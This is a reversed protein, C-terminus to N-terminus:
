NSANVKEAEKNPSENKEIQPKTGETEENPSKTTETKGNSNGSCIPNNKSKESIWDNIRKECRAIKKNWTEPQDESSLSFKVNKMCHQVLKDKNVKSECIGERGVTDKAIPFSAALTGVLAIMSMFTYRM